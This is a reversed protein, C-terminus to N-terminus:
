GKVTVKPTSVFARHLAECQEQTMEGEQLWVRYNVVLPNEPTLEYEFYCGFRGYDRESWRSEGPNKPSNMYVCTYRKGDIVFCMADWPLNTPGKKTKPDWNRTGKEGFDGKGDPRLYYTEKDHKQEHLDNHARFQFGAHQPDGDLKVKGGTTKLRAAFDVLVAKRIEAPKGPVSTPARYVTLEREEKAFVEKMAGHWDVAVRHRGLHPGGETLLFGEHSQHTDPPQAHWTDCTKKDGYTIKNYAFMLGRHHPYLLDKPNKPLLDNTDGGNTLLRTGSPDYLHHFVKYTKNRNAPDYAKHMYRMVPLKRHWLEAWEGEKTKWVFLESEPYKTGPADTIVAVKFDSPYKDGVWFHLDRRVLGKAAPAISETLLSPKTLQAEGSFQFDGKGGRIAVITLDAYGAPLSLPVCLPADRGVGAVEFEAIIKGKDQAVARPGLVLVVLASLFFTSRKM